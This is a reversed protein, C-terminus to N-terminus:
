RTRFIKWLINGDVYHLEKEEGVIEIKGLAYLCDLIEVFEGPDSVKNKIKKYLLSPKINEKELYSLVISFKSLISEQYSTVKSPFKM